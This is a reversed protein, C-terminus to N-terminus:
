LIKSTIIWAEYITFDGFTNNVIHADGHQCGFVHLWQVIPHSEDLPVVAGVANIEDGPLKDLITKTVFDIGSRTSADIWPASVVVDISDPHGNPRRWLAFLSFDGHADSLEHEAVVLKLYPNGFTLLRAPDYGELGPHSTIRRMVEDAARILETASQQTSKGM